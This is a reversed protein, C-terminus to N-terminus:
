YHYILKKLIHLCSSPDNVEKLLFMIKSKSDDFSAEDLMGCGVIKGDPHFHKYLRQIRDNKDLM